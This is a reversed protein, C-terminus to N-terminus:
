KKKKPYEVEPKADKYVSGLRYTPILGLIGIVFFLLYVNSAPTDSLTEYINSSFLQNMSVMMAIVMGAWCALTIYGVVLWMYYGFAEDKSINRYKSVCYYLIDRLEDESGFLVLDEMVSSKIRLKTITYSDDYSMDISKSIYVGSVIRAGVRVKGRDHHESHTETEINADIITDRAITTIFGDKDVIDMCDSYLRVTVKEKTEFNELRFVNNKM